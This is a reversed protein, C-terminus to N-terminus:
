FYIDTAPPTHKSSPWSLPIFVVMKTADVLDHAAAHSIPINQIPPTKGRGKKELPLHHNYIQRAGVADLDGGQHLSEFNSRQFIPGYHWPLDINM